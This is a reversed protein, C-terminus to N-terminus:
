FCELNGGHETEQNGRGREVKMEEITEVNKENERALKYFMRFMKTYLLPLGIRNTAVIKRLDRHLRENRNTGCGVPINSLCGKNVHSKINRIEKLMEKTLVSTGSSTKVSDWKSCFKELNRLVVQPSPSPSSRQKGVDGPQRFVLGYEKSMDSSYKSRKPILRVLRQVAHFIDLKVPVRPFHKRLFQTWKCCNDLFIGDLVINQKAFRQSLQHFLSELESTGEPKTFKWQLYAKRYCREVVKCIQNTSLGTDLLEELYDVLRNTFGSRHSLVFPINCNNIQQLIDIDVGNIEQHGLSCTYQKYMLVVPSTLDFIVRPNLRQLRGNKWNKSNVLHGLVIKKGLTKDKECKPCTIGDEKLLAQFQCLPDFLIYPLACYSEPDNVWTEDLTPFIDYIIEPPDMTHDADYKTDAAKTASELRKINYENIEYGASKHLLTSLWILVGLNIIISCIIRMKM